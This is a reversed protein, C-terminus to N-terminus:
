ICLPINSTNTDTYQDICLFISISLYYIYLIYLLFLYTLDYIQVCIYCLCM